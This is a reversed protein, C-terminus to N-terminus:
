IWKMLHAIGGLVVIVFVYMGAAFHGLRRIRGTVEYQFYGLKEQLAQQQQICTALDINVNSLDNAVDTTRAVQRALEGEVLGLKEQYAAEQQELKSSLCSFKCELAANKINQSTEIECQDQKLKEMNRNVADLDNLLASESAALVASMEYQLANVGLQAQEACQRIQDNIQASLLVMQSALDSCLVEVDKARLAFAQLMKDKTAKVECAIDILKQAGDETLGKLAFYEHVLTELQVAQEALVHHQKQLEGAHKVIGDAQRRLNGQQENLQVQQEALKKSQMISIMMLQAITKSFEAQVEASDLHADKLKDNHWWRMLANKNDFDKRFRKLDDLRQYNRSFDQYIGDVDLRHLAENSVEISALDNIINSM